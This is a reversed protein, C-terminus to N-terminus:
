DNSVIKSAILDENFDKNISTKITIFKLNWITYLLEVFFQISEKSNGIMFYFLTESKSLTETFYSQPLESDDKLEYKQATKKFFQILIKISPDSQQDFFEVTINKQSKKITQIPEIFNALLCLNFYHGALDNDNCLNLHKFSNSQYFQKLYGAKKFSLEGNTAIFQTTTSPYIEQYSVADFISEFISLTETVFPKNSFTFGINNKSNKDFWKKNFYENEKTQIRNIGVINGEVDKVYFALSEGIRTKYTFFVSKFIASSLVVSSLKRFFHLYQNHQEINQIINGHVKYNNGIEHVNPTNFHVKERRVHDTKDVIGMFQNLEQNIEIAPANFNQLIRKKIFQIIDGSDNHVISYYMKVGSNEHKFFRIIDGNNKEDSQVYAKKYKDFHYLSGQKYLFYQEIDVEARVKDWDVSYNM